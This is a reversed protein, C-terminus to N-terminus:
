TGTGPRVVRKLFDLTSDQPCCTVLVLFMLVNNEQMKCSLQKCKNIKSTNNSICSKTKSHKADRAYLVHLQVDQYFYKYM